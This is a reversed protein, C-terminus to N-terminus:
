PKRGKFFQKIDAAAKLGLRRPGGKKDFTIIEAWDEAPAAVADELSGGFYEEVAKSAKLGIHPWAMVATRFDSLPLFGHATHPALHSQHRDMAGDTWWRYLSAIFHLTCARSSTHRIRLGGLLELTLIRKEMESVPMGPLTAWQSYRRPTTIRGKVDPRWTGEVLLWRYDFIETLGPLQHGSLRGTRLSSILDPLKKLEIGIFVAADDNGRGEFAIDAFELTTTEVELGMAKLPEALDASGIRSDILLM